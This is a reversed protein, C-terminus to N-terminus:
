MNLWYNLKFVLSRNRSKLFPDAFYNDTYVVFLDSMPKYRWQLRSNINFNNNQTNYQIFTTWFIATSFNIEIRPALLFLDTSGYPDPFKLRNFEANFDVTLWPQKRLTIGGSIQQYTGNYFGGTVGAINWSFIKRNDSSYGAGFQNFEYKGAALPTGDTFGIPFLLQVAQNNFNVYLNSANKFGFYYEFEHSRESFSNDANLAYFNSVSLGHAQLPGKEPRFTYETENYWHRFGVRIASDRVQDYNEIRNVFGMDAYYNVGVDAYDIFSSFNRGEYSVGTNWFNNKNNIGSKFSKHIAGWASWNGDESIFNLETGANRGYKDLPDAKALEENSMFAQRSLGYVKIISRKLVQQQVSVASYNQSPTEENEGTQMSMVGIRTKDTINGTIRAGLIIPVRQANADLGIRRSYFPQIPPIGYASFIDSNELFFTRREPFFISFRTLNTVQRDVEIQSFDPNVTVDLNLNSNLAIKSDFGANPKATIAEKGSEVDQSAQGTVYPILAINSGAAPPPVDWKLGGLYGLDVGPFNVPIRTWTHFENGKRYSRIFNIGWTTNDKDYRLTKFPIAMEVTFYHQYQQTASFWKNDWSFDIDGGNSANLQDDAQVNFATVSFYFGNTKKNVPDLIVGLGDNERIRSDRKLSVGVFPAEEYLIAGVYLFNEDYTVKVITRYASDAYVDDRPFKMWFLATSDAGQWAAEDFLGDVKLAVTSKKINLQYQEKYHALDISQSYASKGILLILFLAIAFLAKQTIQSFCNKRINNVPPICM